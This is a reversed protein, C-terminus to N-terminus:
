SFSVIQNNIGCVVRAEEELNAWSVKETNFKDRAERAVEASSMNLPYSELAASLDQELARGLKSRSESHDVSALSNTAVIGYINQAYSVM